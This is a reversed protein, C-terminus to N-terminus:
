LVPYASSGDILTLWGTQPFEKHHNDHYAPTTDLIGELPDAPNYGLPLPDPGVSLTMYPYDSGNINPGAM